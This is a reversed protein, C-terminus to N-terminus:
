QSMRALAKVVKYLPRKYSSTKSVFEPKISRLIEPLNKGHIQSDFESRFLDRTSVYSIMDPHNAQSHATWEGGIINGQADLELDYSLFDDFYKEHGTPMREKAVPFNETQYRIKLKVGVIYAVQRPDRYYWNPDSTYTTRAVRAAFADRYSKMTMPNYYEAEYSIVPVNWVEATYDSDVVLSRKGIGVQNVLVVHFIGPNLDRCFDNVVRGSSRAAASQVRPKKEKCLQGFSYVDYDSYLLTLLARIDSPFFTILQGARNKVKVAKVPAAENIAAFSWGDCAGEWNQTNSTLEKLHARTLSYGPDKKANPNNVDGVLLDYKEAPSLNNVLNSQILQEAPFKKLILNRPIKWSNPKPKYPDIWFGPDAYRYALGGTYIPWYDDSWLKKRIASRNIPGLKKLNFIPSHIGFGSFADEHYPKFREAKSTNALIMIAIFITCFSKNSMDNSDRPHITQSKIPIADLDQWGKRDYTSFLLSM